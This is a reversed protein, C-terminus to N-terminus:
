KHTQSKFSLSTTKSPYSLMVNPSIRGTDHFLPLWFPNKEKLIPFNFLICTHLIREESCQLTLCLEAVEKLYTLNYLLDRYIIGPYSNNSALIWLFDFIVHFIIKIPISPLWM